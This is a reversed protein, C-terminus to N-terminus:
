AGKSPDAPQPAEPPSDPSRPPVVPVTGVLEALEVWRAPAPPRTGTYGYVEVRSISIPMSKDINTTPVTLTIFAESGVRQAKITAVQAPVRVVPALPPGKKGCGAVVFTVFLVVVFSSTKKVVFTVVNVFTM